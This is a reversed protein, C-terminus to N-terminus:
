LCMITHKLLSVAAGGMVFLTRYFIADVCIIFSTKKSYEHAQEEEIGLYSATNEIGIALRDNSGGKLTLAHEM